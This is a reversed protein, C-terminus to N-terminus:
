LYTHKVCQKPIKYNDNMRIQGKQKKNYNFVYLSSSLLVDMGEKTVLYNILCLSFMRAQRHM